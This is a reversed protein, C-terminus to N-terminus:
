FDSWQNMQFSEHTEESIYEEAIGWLFLNEKFFYEVSKNPWEKMYEKLFAKLTEKLLEELPEKLFNEPSENMIKELTRKLNKSSKEHFEGLFKELSIKM